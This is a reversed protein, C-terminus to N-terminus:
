DVSRGVSQSVSSLSEGCYPQCRLYSRTTYRLVRQGGCARYFFIFMLSFTLSIFPQPLSIFFLLSFNLLSFPLDIPKPISFPQLSHLSLSFVFSFFCYCSASAALHSIHLFSSLFLSLLILSSPPPPTM